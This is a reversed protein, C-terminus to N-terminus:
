SEHCPKKDSHRAAGPYEDHRSPWNPYAGGNRGEPTIDLYDNTGLLADLGRAYTAYTLFVDGAEDKAFV